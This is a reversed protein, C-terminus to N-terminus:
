LDILGSRLGRSVAETRSSVGLKGLIAHIHFKITHESVNLLAAIVKNSLGNALLSLVQRERSTLPESFPREEEAGRGLASDYVTLGLAISQIAQVIEEASAEASLIGGASQHLMRNLMSADPEPSLLLVPVLEMIELLWDRSEVPSSLDVLALDAESEAIM